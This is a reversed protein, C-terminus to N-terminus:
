LNVIVACVKYVPQPSQNITRESQGSLDTVAWKPWNQINRACYLVTSWSHSALVVLTHVSTSMPWLAYHLAQSLGWM